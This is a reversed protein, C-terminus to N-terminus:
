MLHYMFTVCYYTQHLDTSSGLEADQQAFALDFNVGQMTSLQDLILFYFQVILLAHPSQHSRMCKFRVLPVFALALLEVRKFAVQPCTISHFNVSPLHALDLVRGLHLDPLGLTLQNTPAQDLYSFKAKM